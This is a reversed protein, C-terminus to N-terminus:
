INLFLFKAGDNKFEEVKEQMSKFPMNNYETCLLKLDSLFKRDKETKKGDWGIIKAIEKVKDVSSFNDVLNNQNLREEMCERVLSVFTDKGSCNGTICIKNKRRMVWIGSPVTFCYKYGDITIYNEIKNIKHDKNRYDKNMTHLTKESKIVSYAISKYHKKGVRNDISITANYGLSTFVFQIFDASQKNTTFFCNKNNGDWKLINEAILKLQQKSCNYWYKTFIKEHRPARVFFRSYGPMSPYQKETYEINGEKCIKRYNIEPPSKLSASHCVSLFHM